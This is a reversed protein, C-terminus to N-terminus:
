ENILLEVRRNMARGERTQNSEIPMREGFAKSTMRNTDVGITKFFGMVSDARRQSLDDNYEISGQSDTHATITVSTNVCSTLKQAVDSLTNVSDETLEASDLRFNVGNLVGSLALCESNDPLAAEVIPEPEPMPLPEPLPAAVTEIQEREELKGFRYILGLQGYNIDEEYSIFEARVGLGSRTMYEAGLGALFHFGNVKRYPVGHTENQLYGGGLRIFASPGTRKWRHRNKGMYFLASGSYERYDITGDPSFGASGLNVAQLDISVQRSLDMGVNFLGANQVRDNVDYASSRSADPNLHSLGMGMGIYIHDGIRDRPDYGDSKISTKVSKPQVKPENSGDNFSNFTGCGVLVMSAVVTITAKALTELTHGVGLPAPKYLKNTM